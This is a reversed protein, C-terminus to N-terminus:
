RRLRPDGAALCAEARLGRAGRSAGGRQGGAAPRGRAPSKPDGPTWGTADQCGRSPFLWNGATLNLRHAAADCYDFNAVDGDSMPYDRAFAFGTLYGQYQQGTTPM